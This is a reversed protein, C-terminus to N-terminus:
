NTGDGGEVAINKDWGSQPNFLMRDVDFANLRRRRPRENSQQRMDSSGEEEGTEVNTDIRADQLLAELNEIAIEPRGKHRLM